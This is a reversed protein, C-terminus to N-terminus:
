CKFKGCPLYHSMAWGYLNNADQFMIYKSPKNDDYYKMYKNNAKSLRKAIYPIGQKMGKGVFLYM